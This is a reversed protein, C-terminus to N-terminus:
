KLKSKIVKGIEKGISKFEDFSFVDSKANNCWYCSLKCNDETYEKDEIREIELSKGRKIRKVGEVNKLEYFKLAEQETIGCYCCTKDEKIYWDIFDTRKWYKELDYNVRSKISSYRNSATKEIESKSM